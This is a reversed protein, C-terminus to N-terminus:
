EILIRAVSSVSKRVECPTITAIAGCRVCSVAHGRTTRLWAHHGLACLWLPMPREGSARRREVRQVVRATSSGLM